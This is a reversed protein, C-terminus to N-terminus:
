SREYKPCAELSCVQPHTVFYKRTSGGRPHELRESRCFETVGIHNLSFKIPRSGQRDLPGTPARRSCGAIDM